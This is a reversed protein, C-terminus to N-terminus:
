GPLKYLDGDQVILGADILKALVLNMYVRTWARGAHLAEVTAPGQKLRELIEQELDM